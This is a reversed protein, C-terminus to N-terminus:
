EEYLASGAASFTTRKFSVGSAGVTFPPAAYSSGGDVSVTITGNTGVQSVFDYTKGQYEAPLVVPITTDHGTVWSALIAQVPPSGAPVQPVTDNILDDATVYLGLPAPTDDYLERRPIETAPRLTGSAFETDSAATIQSVNAADKYKIVSQPLNVSASAPAAMVVTGGDTTNVEGDDLQYSGIFMTVLDVCGIQNSDSDELLLRPIPVNPMIGGVGDNVADGLVTNQPDGNCDTWGTSIQPINYTEGCPNDVTDILEAGTTSRIALPACPKPEDCGCCVDHITGQTMSTLDGVGFDRSWAVANWPQEPYDASIYMSTPGIFVRWGPGIPDNVVTASADCNVFETGNWTFVGSLEPELDTGQITLAGALTTCDLELGNGCPDEVSAVEFGAFSAVLPDCPPCDSPVDLTGGSPVTGFALGDRTVTGDPAFIVFPDEPTYDCPDVITGTSLVDFNTDWLAYSLECQPGDGGCIDGITGQTYTWPTSGGGFLQWGDDWPDPLPDAIVVGDSVAITVGSTGNVHLWNKALIQIHEYIVFSGFRYVKGITHTENIDLGTLDGVAYLGAYAGGAV